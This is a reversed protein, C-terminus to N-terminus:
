AFGIPTRTQPGGLMPALVPSRTVTPDGIRVRCRFMPVARRLRRSESFAQMRRRPASTLVAETSLVADGKTDVAAVQPRETRLSESPFSGNCLELTPQGAVINGDPSSSFALAVARRCDARILLALVSSNPSPVIPTARNSSPNRGAPARELIATTACRPASARAIGALVIVAVVVAVLWRPVTVGPRKPPPPAPRRGHPRTPRGGVAPCRFTFPLDPPSARLPRLRRPAFTAKTPPVGQSM